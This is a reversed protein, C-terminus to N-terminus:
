AVGTIIGVSEDSFGPVDLTICNDYQLKFRNNFNLLPENPGMRENTFKVSARFKREELDLETSDDGVVSCIMEWLRICDHGARVEMFDPLRFLRDKVHQACVQVKGFM